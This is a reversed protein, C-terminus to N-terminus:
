PSIVLGNLFETFVQEYKKLLNQSTYTIVQITGEKGGYYYGYYAFPVQKLTGNIRLCLIERGNVVRKEELIIRADEAAKQANELVVEKLTTIPMEIGEAIVMVYGDEGILQFYLKGEPDPKGAKKWKSEDYWVGFNGRETKIFKTASPPKIYSVKQSPRITSETIYKWTGDPYLIVEKGTETRARTQAFTQCSLYSWVFSLTLIFVLLVSKKM